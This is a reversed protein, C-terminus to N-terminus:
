ELCEKSAAPNRILLLRKVRITFVSPPGCEPSYLWVIKYVGVIYEVHVGVHSLPKVRVSPVRVTCATSLVLRYSEVKVRHASARSAGASRWQSCTTTSRLAASIVALHRARAAARGFFLLGSSRRGVSLRGREPSTDLDQM